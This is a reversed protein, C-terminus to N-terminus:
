RVGREAGTRAIIDAVLGGHAALWQDFEAVLEPASVSSLHYGGAAHPLSPAFIVEGALGTQESTYLAVAVNCYAGDIRGAKVQRLLQELNANERLTVSGSRLGERWAYPTFGAITGLAHVTEQGAAAAERRVLTGDVYAIVPRSFAVAKGQRLGSAWDPSDPFKLDIGGRALEAYLRKVPLPQYTLRHGSAVAFADFIERAAGIFVGDHVGYAPLYDIAEVGVTVDRAGAPHIVAVASLLIAASALGKSRM